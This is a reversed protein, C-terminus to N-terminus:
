KRQKRSVNSKRRRTQKKNFRKRNTKNQKKNGHRRKKTRRLGAIGAGRKLERIQTELETIEALIAAEIQDANKLEKKEQTTLERIKPGSLFAAEEATLPPGPEGQQLAIDKLKIKELRSIKKKREKIETHRRLAEEYRRNADANLAELEAIQRLKAQKTKDVKAEEIVTETRLKMGKFPDEKSQSSEKLESLKKTKEEYEQDFEAITDRTQKEKQRKAEQKKAYGPCQELLTRYLDGITSGDGGPIKYDSRFNSNQESHENIADVMAVTETLNIFAANRGSVDVAQCKFYLVPPDEDCDVCMQWELGATQPILKNFKEERNRTPHDLGYRIHFYGAESQTANVQDENGFTLHINDDYTSSSSASSSSSSASSASPEYIHIYKLDHVTVVCGKSLKSKLRDTFQNTKVPVSVSKGSKGSTKTIFPVSKDTRTLTMSFVLEKLYPLSQINVPRNTGNIYGTCKENKGGYMEERKEDDDFDFEYISVLQYPQGDIMVNKEVGLEALKNEIAYQDDTYSITTVLGEGITQNM